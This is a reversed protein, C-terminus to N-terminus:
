RGAADQFFKVMTRGALAYGYNTFHPDNNLYVRQHLRHYADRLVPMLDYYPIAGAACFDRIFKQPRRIDYDAGEPTLAHVQEKCPISVILLSIGQAACFNNIETLDNLAVQVAQRAIPPYDKQSWFTPSKFQRSVVFEDFNSKEVLHNELQFLLDTSKKIILISNLALRLSAAGSDARSSSAASPARNEPPILREVVEPNWELNGHQDVRWKDLGLFTDAFDNGNYFLLFLYDPQYHVVEEQLYLKIDDLAYGPVGFNLAEFSPGIGDAFVGVVTQKYNDAFTGFTFSDGMFAIRKKGPTPAMDVEPGPRGQSNTRFVIKRGWVKATYNYNPLLRYSGTGHPNNQFFGLRVPPPPPVGQNFRLALELGFLLLILTSVLLFIKKLETILHNRSRLIMFLGFAIFVLDGASILIRFLISHMRGSPSILFQLFHFNGLLGILVCLVGILRYINFDIKYRASRNM